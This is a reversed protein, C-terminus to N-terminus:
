LSLHSKGQLAEAQAEKEQLQFSRILPNELMCHTVLSSFTSDSVYINVQTALPSLHPHHLAPM